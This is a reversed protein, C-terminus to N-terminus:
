SWLGVNNEVPSRIIITKKTVTATESKNKKMRTATKEMSPTM